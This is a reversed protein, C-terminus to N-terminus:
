GNRRPKIVAGDAIPSILHLHQLFPIQNNLFSAELNM